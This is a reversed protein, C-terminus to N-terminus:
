FSVLLLYVFICIKPRFINRLHCIYFFHIRLKLIKFLFRASGLTLARKPENGKIQPSLQVWLSKTTRWIQWRNLQFFFVFFYLLVYQAVRLCCCYFLNSFNRIRNKQTSLKIADSFFTEAKLTIPIILLM